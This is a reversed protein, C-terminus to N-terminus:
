LSFFSLRIHLYNVPQHLTDEKSSDLNFLSSVSSDKGFELGIEKATGGGRDGFNMHSHNSLYNYESHMWSPIIPFLTNRVSPVFIINIVKLPWHKTKSIWGLSSFPLPSFFIVM